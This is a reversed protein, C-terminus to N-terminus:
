NNHWVPQWENCQKKPFYPPFWQFENEDWPAKPGPQPAIWPEPYEPTWPPRYPDPINIRPPIWRPTPLISPERYTDQFM